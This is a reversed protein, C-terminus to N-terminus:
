LGFCKEDVGFRWVVNRCFIGGCEFFYDVSYLGFVLGCVELGEM